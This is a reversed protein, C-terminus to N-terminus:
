KKFINKFDIKIIPQTLIVWETEFYHRVVFEEKMLSSFEQKLEDVTKLNDLFNEVAPQWYNVAASFHGIDMEGNTKICSEVMDLAEERETKWSLTEIEGGELSLNVLEDLHFVANSIVDKHLKLFFDFRYFKLNPLKAQEKDMLIIGGRASYTDVKCPYFKIEKPPQTYLFM